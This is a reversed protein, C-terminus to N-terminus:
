IEQLAALLRAKDKQFTKTTMGEVIERIEEKPSKQGSTLLKPMAANLARRFEERGPQFYHKLVIDTTRHGTVKQVLELPVGATLALTVWTVRFSHFDRVSARRLGKKRDAHIEGLFRGTTKEEGAQASPLRLDSLAGAENGPLEEDDGIDRFGAAAFVERVRKSIGVPNALYASAQEPFVYDEGSRSGFPRLGSPHGEAKREQSALRQKLEDYLMPFIPISVSQGTKATRVTLFRRALDVDRNRLLCCDGRRMATCMGVILIPRLFENDRAADLIAKLEEPTFPKRFVTDTERTPIEALPNICGAPLLHTLTGRLLLLTDNWTKATVGRESEAEMFARAATRTVHGLDEAAPNERRIFATFRKLTSQCQSAYRANMKRKRPIRAWEDALGDLKVTRLQEGTKIEYLKEVLRTTDRKSRAEEVISELKAQAAARSREFAADGEERLSLSGPPTGAVKVGLNQCFRKGNIKFRGYWFPRVTGSAEIRLELPM